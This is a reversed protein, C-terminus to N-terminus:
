EHTFCLDCYSLAKIKKVVTEMFFNNIEVVSIQLITACYLIDESHNWQFDKYSVAFTYYIDQYNDNNDNKIFSGEM